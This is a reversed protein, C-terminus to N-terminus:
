PCTRRPSPCARERHRSGCRPRDVSLEVDPTLFKRFGSATAEIKYHGVPLALIRYQGVSDSVTTQKLNTALNTAVVTVGSVVAGTADTVTGLISGTVDARLSTSVFLFFPLLLLLGWLKARM